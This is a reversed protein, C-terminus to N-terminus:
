ISVIVNLNTSYTGRDRGAKEPPLRDRRDISLTLHVANLLPKLRKVLSFTWLFRLEQNSFQSNVLNPTILNCVSHLCVDDLIFRRFTAAFISNRGYM